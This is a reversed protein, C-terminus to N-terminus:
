ARRVRGRGRLRRSLDRLREIFAERHARLPLQLERRIAARASSAAARLGLLSWEGPSIRRADVSWSGDRRVHVRPLAVAASGPDRFALRYRGPALALLGLSLDVIVQGAVGRLEAVLRVRRGARGPPRPRLPPRAPALSVAEAELQVIALPGSRDTSIPLVFAPGAAIPAVQVAAADVPPVSGDPADIRLELGHSEAVMPKVWRPPDGVLGPRAWWRGPTEVTQLSAVRHLGFASYRAELRWAGESLPRGAPGVALPDLEASGRFSPKRVRRRGRGIEALAFRSQAPLLWEVASELHVASLQSRATELESSVPAPSVGLGATLAPDLIASDGDVLVVVPRGDPWVLEVGYDLRMLGDRWRASDVTAKARIDAARAALAWLADSRGERLLASALRLVSGLRDEVAPESWRRAIEGLAEALAARYGDDATLVDPSLLRSLGENRYFKALLRTRVPGLDPEADVSAMLEALHAAHSAPDVREASIHAEDDRRRFYYVPESSFISIVGARLYAQLTFLQDEMQRWREPFLIGHERLFTRRFLKDAAFSGNVLQPMTRLTARARNRVFLDQRRVLTQSAHKGVVVDAGNRRATRSLMELARPALEDDADMFFVYEGRALALGVNRPRGPAGSPPIREVRVHPHARALAALRAPTDDTSGDDVFVIELQGAPLSQALLSAIAPEVFRGPDHVPVVVTVVPRM